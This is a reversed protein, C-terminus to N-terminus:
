RHGAAAVTRTRGENCRCRWYECVPCVDNQAATVGWGSDTDTHRSLLRVTRVEILRPFFPDYSRVTGYVEARAGELLDGFYRRYQGADVALTCNTGDTATLKVWAGAPEGEPDDESPILEIATITGIASVHLGAQLDNLRGTKPGTAALFEVILRGHGYLSPPNFTSTAANESGHEM